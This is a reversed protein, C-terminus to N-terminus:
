ACVRATSKAGPPKMEFVVRHGAKDTYVAETPSVLTVTGAQYPNDWGPPPNASGDSLPRTAEYYRNRDARLLHRLPHVPQLSGAEAGRGQDGGTRGLDARRSALKRLLHQERV